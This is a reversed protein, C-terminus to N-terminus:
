HNLRVPSCQASREPQSSLWCYCSSHAVSRQRAKWVSTWQPCYTHHWFRVETDLPTLTATCTCWSLKEAYSIAGWMMVSEEASITSRLSATGQSGRMEADTSVHVAMEVRTRSDIKQLMFRSEDSFWVWMCNQLDWRRVRNCWRVRALLHRCRLATGFFPRRARLGNERLRKRVTQASIRRLGPPM